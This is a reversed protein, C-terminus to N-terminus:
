QSEKGSCRLDIGRSQYGCEPCVIRLVGDRRQVMERRWDCLQHRLWKAFHRM